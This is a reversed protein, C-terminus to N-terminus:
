WRNLIFYKVIARIMEYVSISGDLNADVNEKAYDVAKQFDQISCIPKTIWAKIIEFM